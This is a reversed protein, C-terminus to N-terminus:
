SQIGVSELWQFLMVQDQTKEIAQETQEIAQKLKNIKSDLVNQVVKNSTFIGSLGLCNKLRMLYQFVEKKILEFDSSVILNLPIDEIDTSNVALEFPFTKKLLVNIDENISFISADKKSLSLLFSILSKNRYSEELQPSLRNKVSEDASAMKDILEPYFKEYLNHFVTLRKQYTDFADTYTDFADTYLCLAQYKEIEKNSTYLPRYNKLSVYSVLLLADELNQPSQLNHYSKAKEFFDHKYDIIEKLTEFLAADLEKNVTEFDVDSHKNYMAIFKEIEEDGEIDLLYCSKEQLYSDVLKTVLYKIVDQLAEKDFESLNWSAHAHDLKLIFDYQKKNLEQLCSRCEKQYDNKIKELEDIDTKGERLSVIKGRVIDERIKNIKKANM